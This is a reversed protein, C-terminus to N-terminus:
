LTLPVLYSTIRHLFPLPLYFIFLFLMPSTSIANSLDSIVLLKYPNFDLGIAITCDVSVIFLCFMPIDIVTFIFLTLLFDSLTPFADCLYAITHPICLQDTSTAILGIYALLCQFYCLFM